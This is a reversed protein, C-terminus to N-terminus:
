EVTKLSIGNKEGKNYKEFAKFKNKELKTFRQSYDPDTYAIDYKVSAIEKWENDILSLVKLEQIDTSITKSYYM